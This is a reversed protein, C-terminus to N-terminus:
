TRERQNREARGNWAALMKDDLHPRPRRDRARKLKRLASELLSQVEDPTRGFKRATEDASARVVLM